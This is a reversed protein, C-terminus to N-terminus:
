RAWRWTTMTPSSRRSRTGFEELWQGMKTAAPGRKWNGTDSGLKELEVGAESLVQISYETRLLADQHGPEGELMVYQLIGDGNKDLRERDSLWAKLVLAWSTGGEEARAGGLLASGM